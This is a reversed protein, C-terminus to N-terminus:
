IAPLLIDCSQAPLRDGRSRRRTPPQGSWRRFARSFASTESYGVSAAVETVPLRTYELLHRAAEFRVEDLVRQFTTGETRLRRSLTRRHFFLQRAVEEGSFRGDALLTRLTRRLRPVLEPNAIQQAQLELRELREANAEPMPKDLFCSPFLIATRESDFRCSTRFFRRYVGVDAPKARAFYVKEPAWWFGVIERMVNCAIALLADYIQDIFDVGQQYIAYSVSVLGEHESLCMAQGQNDLHQYAFFKRLGARLTASHRLLAGQIGLHSLGIRQGVLMGFTSCGTAAACEHLLRGVSVYPIRNEADNLADNDVGARSLVTTLDVGMERLLDPVVVMGGVRQYNRNTTAMQTYHRHYYQPSGKIGIGALGEYDEQFLAPEFRGKGNM